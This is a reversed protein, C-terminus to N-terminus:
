LWNDKARTLEGSGDHKSLVVDKLIHKGSQMDYVDMRLIENEDCNMQILYQKDGEALAVGFSSYKDGQLEEENILNQDNIIEEDLVKQM